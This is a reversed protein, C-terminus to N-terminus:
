KKNFWGMGIKSSFYNGATNMSSVAQSYTSNVTPKVVATATIILAAAIATFVIVYEVTSQGSSKSLM